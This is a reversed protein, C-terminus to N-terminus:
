DTLYTSPDIVMNAGEKNYKRFVPQVSRGELYKDVGEELAKKYVVLAEHIKEITEAIDADTHSYSIISSPM